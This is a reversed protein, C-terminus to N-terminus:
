IIEGIQGTDSVVIIDNEKDQVRSWKKGNNLRSITTRKIPEVTKVLNQEYM